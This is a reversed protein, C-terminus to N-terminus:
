LLKETYRLGLTRIMELAQKETNEDLISAPDHADVGIVVTNGVESAIRFFKSSPYQRNSRLGLLNIELPVSMKKAGQCLRLYEREIAEASFKYGALDPHALYLFDGTALGALVQSVYAGLAVDDDKLRSSVVLDKEEGLFHQGLLLYDPSVQKLFAIEEAHCEPYYELEFGCLIRIDNAYEKALARVTQAYEHLEDVRM